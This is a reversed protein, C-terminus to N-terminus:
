RVKESKTESSSDPRDDNCVEDYNGEYDGWAGSSVMECYLEQQKIADELDMNGVAVLATFLVIIWFKNM